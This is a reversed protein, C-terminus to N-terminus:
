DPQNIHLRIGTVKPLLIKDNSNGSLMEGVLVLPFEDDPLEGSDRYYGLIIRNNAHLIKSDLHISDGNTTFIWVPYGTQARDARYSNISGDQAHPVYLSDDAYALFRYVPVGSYMVLEGNIEISSKTGHCGVCSQVTQRDITEHRLGSVTISYERYEIREIRIAAVDRVSTHGFISPKTPGVKITRNTGLGGMLSRGNQTFALIWTGESEDLIDEASNTMEYGDSAIFVISDDPRLAGHNTLLGPLSVGGWRGGIVTGTSTTFSGADEVFFPSETIEEIELHFTDAPMEILIGTVAVSEISSEGHGSKAFLFTLLLFIFTCLVVTKM